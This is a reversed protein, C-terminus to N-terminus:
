VIEGGKDVRVIFEVARRHRSTRHIVGQVVALTQLVAVRFVLVQFDAGARGIGHAGILPVHHEHICSWDLPFRECLQQKLQPPVQEDDLPERARM